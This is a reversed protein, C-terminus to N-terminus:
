STCIWARASLGRGVSHHHQGWKELPDVNKGPDTPAGLGFSPPTMVDGVSEGGASRANPALPSRGQRVGARPTLILRTAAGLPAGNRRVNRTSLTDHSRRKGGAAAVPGNPGFCM